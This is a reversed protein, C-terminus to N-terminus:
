APELGFLSVSTDAGAFGFVHEFYLSSIGFAARDGAM